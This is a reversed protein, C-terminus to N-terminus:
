RAAAPDSWVLSYKATAQRLQIATRASFTDGDALNLINAASRSLQVDTSLALTGTLDLVDTSTNYTLEADTTALGAATTVVVRRAAGAGFGIGAGNLAGASTIQTEQNNSNLHMLETVGTVDQEYVFGVDAQSAPDTALEVQALPNVGFGQAPLLM